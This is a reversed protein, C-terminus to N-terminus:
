QSCLLTPSDIPRGLLREAEGLRGAALAQRIRSSSVPRGEDIVPEAVWTEVGRAAALGQIEAVGTDLGCGCRFNRGLAILKVPRSDADRESGLLLDIYDRGNMKSFEGSFDILVALRVGLEELVSLRQELPYIDGAFADPRLIKLPNQRFTVVTPLPYHTAPLPYLLDNSAPPACIQRILAQHGLHVGDFVGVTLALPQPSTSLPYHPSIYEEWNIIQMFM